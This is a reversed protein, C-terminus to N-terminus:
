QSLSIYIHGVHYFVVFTMSKVILFIPKFDVFRGQTKECFVQLALAYRMILLYGAIAKIQIAM